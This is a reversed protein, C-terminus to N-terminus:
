YNGLWFVDQFKRIIKKIEVENDKKSDPIKWVILKKGYKPSDKLLLKPVDDAVIVHYDSEGLMKSTLGQSKSSIPFGLEKAIAVEKKDLPHGRIVGASIVEIKSNKSIKNFVSEAVKSRFRNFKCIWSFEM